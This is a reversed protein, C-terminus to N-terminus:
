SYYIGTMLVCNLALVLWREQPRSLGDGHTEQSLPNGTRVPDEIVLLGESQRNPSSSHMEEATTDMAMNEYVSHRPAFESEASRVDNSDSRRHPPNCCNETDNNMM